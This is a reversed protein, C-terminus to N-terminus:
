ERVAARGTQAIAQYLSSLKQRPLEGESLKRLLVERHLM